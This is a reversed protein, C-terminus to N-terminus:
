SRKARAQSAMRNASIYVGFVILWVTQPYGVVREMGGLSLGLYHRSVFLALATLTLAGTFLSYLKLAKPVNLAKGLLVIGVSGILFSLGAGTFHLLAVTNEPFLGVLVAGVGAATMFSFGILSLRNKIFEHYILLSGAAM